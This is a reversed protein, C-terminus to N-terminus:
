LHLPAPPLGYQRGQRHRAACPPQEAGPGPRSVGDRRLRGPAPGGGPFCPCPEARRARGFSHATSRGQRQGGARHRLRLVGSQDRLGACGARRFLPRCRSLRSLGSHYGLGLPHLPYPHLGPRFRPDADAPHSGRRGRRGCGRRDPRHAGLGGGHRRHGEADAPLALAPAAGASDTLVRCTRDRDVVPVMDPRLMWNGREESQGAANMELLKLTIADGGRTLSVTLAYDKATPSDAADLFRGSVVADRAGHPGPEYDCVPQYNHTYYDRGALRLAAYAVSAQRRCNAHASLLEKARAQGPAAAARRKRPRAAAAGM